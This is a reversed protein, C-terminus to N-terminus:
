CQYDHENYIINYIGTDRINKNTLTRDYTDGHSKADDSDKKKQMYHLLSVQYTLYLVNSLLVIKM